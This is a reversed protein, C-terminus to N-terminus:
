GSLLDLRPEEVPQLSSYVPLLHVVSRLLMVVVPLQKQYLLPSLLIVM